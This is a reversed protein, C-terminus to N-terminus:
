KTTEKAPKAAPAGKFEPSKVGYLVGEPTSELRASLRSLNNAMIRAEVIFQRFESLGDVAFDEIPGRSAAVTKQLDDALKAISAAAKRGDAVALEFEELGQSTRELSDIFRGIAQERAAIASSVKRMDALVLAINQANEQSLMQGARGVLLSTQTILDPASKVLESIKSEQAAIVPIEGSTVKPLLDSEPSGGFIQVFSLGTIGQLQLMAYSDARVPTDAIIEIMVEVRRPDNPDFDIRSVRGVKIGSFRVDSGVGIGSVSESFFVRYQALDADLHVRSVWIIFLFIGTVFALVFSGILLHRARTEM